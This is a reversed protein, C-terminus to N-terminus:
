EEGTKTTKSKKDLMGYYTYAWFIRMDEDWYYISYALSFINVTGSKEKKDGALMRVVRIMVPYLEDIEEIRLLRKFRQESVFPMDKRKPKAMQAPIEPLECFGGDDPDPKVHSLIGMVAALRKPSDDDGALHKEFSRFKRQYASSIIVDTLRHCRKLEAREGRNSIKGESARSDLAVWWKELNDGLPQGPQFGSEKYGKCEM